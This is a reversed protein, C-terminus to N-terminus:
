FKWFSAQPGFCKGISYFPSLSFLGKGSMNRYFTSQKMGIIKPLEILSIRKKAATNKIEELFQHNTKLQM